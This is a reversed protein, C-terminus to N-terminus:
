GRSDGLELAMERVAASGIHKDLERITRWVGRVENGKVGLYRLARRLEEPAFAKYGELLWSLGLAVGRAFRSRSILAWPIPESSTRGKMLHTVEARQRATPAGGDSIGVVRLPAGADPEALLRGLEVIYADHEDDAVLARGHISILLTVSGRWVSYVM